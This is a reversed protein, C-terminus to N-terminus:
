PASSQRLWPDVLLQFIALAGRASSEGQLVTRLALGDLLSLVMQVSEKTPVTSKVGFLARLTIAAEDELRATVRQMHEQLDPDTRAAVVLEIWALLTPGSYLQQLKKFATDIRQSEDPGSEVLQQFETIRRDCLREMAAVMLEVKTPFHHLQAGRSVGAKRCIEPTSTGEFGREILCDITADLLALQTSASREAQSRRTM